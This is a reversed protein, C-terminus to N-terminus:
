ITALPEQKSRGRRGNWGWEILFVVGEEKEMARFTAMIERKHSTKLQVFATDQISILEM